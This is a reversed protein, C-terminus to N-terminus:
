FMNDIEEASIVGIDDIAKLLMEKTVPTNNTISEYTLLPNIGRTKEVDFSISKIYDANETYNDKIWQIADDPQIKGYGRYMDWDGPYNDFVGGITKKATMRAAERVIQWNAGSLLKIKKLKAGVISCIPSQQQGGLITLDGYVYVIKGTGSTLPTEVRVTYDNIIEAVVANESAEPNDKDSVNIYIKEGVQLGFKSVWDPYNPQNAVYILGTEDITGISTDRLFIKDPFEINLNSIDEFFEVGYGYSSQGILTTTDDVRAAVAVVNTLFIEPGSTIDRRQQGGLQSYNGYHAGVKLINPNSGIQEYSAGNIYPKFLMNAKKLEMYKPEYAASLTNNGTLVDKITEISEINYQDWLEPYCALFIRRMTDSHYTNGSVEDQIVNEGVAKRVDYNSLETSSFISYEIHLYEFDNGKTIYGDGDKLYFENPPTSNYTESRPYSVRPNLIIDGSGKRLLAKYVEIKKDSLYTSHPITIYDDTWVIDERKIEITYQPLPPIEGAKAFYDEDRSAATGIENNQVFVDLEDRKVLEQGGVIDEIKIIEQGMNNLLQLWLMMEM